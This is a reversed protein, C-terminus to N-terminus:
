KNIANLMHPTTSNDFSCIAFTTVRIPLTSVSNLISPTRNAWKNLTSVVFDIAVATSGFIKSLEDVTSGATAVALVEV